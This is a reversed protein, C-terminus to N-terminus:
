VTILFVKIGPPRNSKLGRGNVTYWSPAGACIGRERRTSAPCAVLTGIEQLGCRFGRIQIQNLVEPIHKIPLQIAPAKFGDTRQFCGYPTSPTGDRSM